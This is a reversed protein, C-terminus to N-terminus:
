SSISAAAALMARREKELVVRDIGFHRMLLANRTEIIPLYWCSPMMPTTTDSQSLVIKETELWELFDIIAHERVQLAALRECEPYESM